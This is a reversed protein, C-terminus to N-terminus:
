PEELIKLHYKTESTELTASYPDTGLVRFELEPDRVTYQAIFTAFLHKTARSYASYILYSQSNLPQIDLHFLKAM